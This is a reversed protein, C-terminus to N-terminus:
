VMGGTLAQYTGEKDLGDPAFAVLSSGHWKGITVNELRIAAMMGAPQGVSRYPILRLGPYKGSGVTEVPTRLQSETLGMLAFAAKASVVLVSQGTVPDRLTNGTDRLALLKVQKEGRKLEVHVLERSGPSTQFGFMCLACLLAAAVALSLVNGSGICTALGGLAMTLLFLLICRRISALCIGFSIGGMVGICVLRWFLNGLFRFRPLLCAGAYASGVLASLAAKGPNLPAGSLRNTGLILFFDVLFNLLMIVGLYVRM